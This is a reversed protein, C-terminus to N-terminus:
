TITLDIHENEQKVDTEKACLAPVVDDYCGDLAYWVNLYTRLNSLLLCNRNIHNSM